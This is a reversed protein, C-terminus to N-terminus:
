HRFVGDSGGEGSMSLVVKEMPVWEDGCARSVFVRLNLWDIIWVSYIGADGKIKAKVNERDINM